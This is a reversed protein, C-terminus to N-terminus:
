FDSLAVKFLSKFDIIFLVLYFFFVLLPLFFVFLWHRGLRVNHHHLLHQFM